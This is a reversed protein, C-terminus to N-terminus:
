SKLLPKLIASIVHGILYVGSLKDIFKLLLSLETIPTSFFEM